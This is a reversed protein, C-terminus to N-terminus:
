NKGELQGLMKADLVVPKTSDCITLNGKVKYLNEGTKEIGTSQFKIEPFKEASFFDESRLDKDRYDNDTNVSATKIVAEVTASTFDAGPQTVTVDFDKFNGTVESILMHIISFSVRSHSRDAKWISQAFSQTACIFLAILLSTLTKM